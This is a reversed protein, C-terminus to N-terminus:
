IIMAGERAGTRKFGTEEDYYNAFEDNSIYGIDSNEPVLFHAFKV